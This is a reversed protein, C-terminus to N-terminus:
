QGRYYRLCMRLHAGTKLGDIVIGAICFTAALALFALAVIFNQESIPLEM